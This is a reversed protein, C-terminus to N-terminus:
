VLDINLDKCLKSLYFVSFANINMTKEPNAECYNIGIIAVTNIIINPRHSKLLKKLKVKNTIDIDSHSCGIFKINKDKKLVNEQSTGLLGTAGLVLIKKKM